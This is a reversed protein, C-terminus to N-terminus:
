PTAGTGPLPGANGDVIRWGGLVAGGQM